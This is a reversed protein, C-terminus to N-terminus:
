YDPDPPCGYDDAASTGGVTIGGCESNEEDETDTEPGNADTSSSRDDADNNNNNNGDAANDDDEEETIEDDVDAASTGGVPPIGNQSGTTIANGSAITTNSTTNGQTGAAAGDGALASLAMDLYMMVGQTDNNQLAMRAQEINMRLESTSQNVAGAASTANTANGGQAAGDTITTSAANDTTAAGGGGGGTMNEQAIAPQYSSILFVGSLLLAVTVIAGAMPIAASAKAKKNDETAIGGKIGGTDQKETMDIVIMCTNNNLMLVTCPQAFM